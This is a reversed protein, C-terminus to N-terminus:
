SDFIPGSAPIGRRELGHGIQWTAARNSICIVTEADSALYAGYALRLVDPKGQEDTNWITADSQAALIEDVLADGYTARPRRAVRHLCSQAERDRRPAPGVGSGDRM